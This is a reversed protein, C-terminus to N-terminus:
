PKDVNSTSGEQPASPANRLNTPTIPPTSTSSLDAGTDPPTANRVVAAPYIPVLLGVSVLTDIHAQRAEAVTLDKKVEKKNKSAFRAQIAVIAAEPVDVKDATLIDGVKHPPMSGPSDQWTAHVRYGEPKPREQMGNNALLKTIRAGVVKPPAAVVKGDKEEDNPGAKQVEELEATQTDAM